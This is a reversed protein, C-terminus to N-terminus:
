FLPAFLVFIATTFLLKGLCNVQIKSWCRSLWQATDSVMAALLLVALSVPKSVHFTKQVNMEAGWRIKIYSGYEEAWIGENQTIYWPRPTQNTKYWKRWGYDIHRVLIKTLRTWDWLKVPVFRFGRNGALISKRWFQSTKGDTPNEFINLQIRTTFPFVKQVPHMNMQFNIFFKTNILGNEHHWITKDAARKGSCATKSLRRNLSLNQWM